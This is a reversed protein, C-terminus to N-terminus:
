ARGDSAAFQGVIGAEKGAPDGIRLTELGTREHGIRFQRPGIERADSRKQNREFSPFAHGGGFIIADRVNNAGIVLRGDGTREFPDPFRLGPKVAPDRRNVVFLDPEAVDNGGEDKEDCAPDLREDQAELQGAGVLRQQRGFLVVLHERHM